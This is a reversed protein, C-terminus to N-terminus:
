LQVGQNYCKRYLAMENSGEAVGVSQIFADKFGGGAFWKFLINMFTTMMHFMGMMLVCSGFKLSEGWKIECAKSCIAKDFM